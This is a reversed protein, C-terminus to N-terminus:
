REKIGYSEEMTGPYGSDLTNIEHINWHPGRIAKHEQELISRPNVSDVDGVDVEKM